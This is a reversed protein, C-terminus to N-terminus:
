ECVDIEPMSDPYGALRMEDRTLKSSATVIRSGDPNFVASYLREDHGRLVAIEKATAADWIRATNDWSATVIRSGDPSFAASNVLGDHGGLAFRWNAASVAAALAAGAPSAKVTDSPLALDIRTGQSALRLASDFEGRLLRTASLEALINAQGHTLATEQRALQEAQIALQQATSAQQRAKDFQLYGVTASGILIVAGVAAFARQWKAISAQAVATSAQAAEKEGLAVATSAQAAEKEALAAATRDQAARIEAVRAEDRALADEREKRETEERASSLTIFEGIDDITVDGPEALLARGRELQFGAPLLLDKRRGQQEWELKAQVVAARARLKERNPRIWERLRPWTRILAEHAVEVIPRDPGDSGTVL